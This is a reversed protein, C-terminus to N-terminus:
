LFFTDFIYEILVNEAQRVHFTAQLALYIGYAQYFATQFKGRVPRCRASVPLNLKHGFLFGDIGHCQRTGWADICGGLVTQHLLQAACRGYEVVAAM